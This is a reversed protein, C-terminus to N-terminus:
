NPNYIMDGKSTIAKDNEVLSIQTTGKNSLLSDEPDNSTSFNQMSNSSGIVKQAPNALRTSRRLGVTLATVKRHPTEDIPLKVLDLPENAKKGHLLETPAIRTTSFKPSNNLALQLKPLIM